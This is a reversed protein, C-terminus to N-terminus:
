RRHNCREYEIKKELFEKYCAFKEYETMDDEYSIREPWLDESQPLTYYRISLNFYKAHKTKAEWEAIIEKIREEKAEWEANEKACMEPFLAKEKETHICIPADYTHYLFACPYETLPFVSLMSEYTETRYRDYVWWEHVATVGLNFLETNLKPTPKYTQRFITLGLPYGVIKPDFELVPRLHDLKALQLADRVEDQTPCDGHHWNITVETKTQKGISFNLM